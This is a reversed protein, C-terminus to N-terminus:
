CIKFNTRRQKKLLIFYIEVLIHSSEVILAISNIFVNLVFSYEASLWTQLIKFCGFETNFANWTHHLVNELFIIYSGPLIYSNEVILTSFWILVHFAFYVIM